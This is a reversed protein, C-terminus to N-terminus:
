PSVILLLIVEAPLGLESGCVYNGRVGEKEQVEGLGQLYSFDVVAFLKMSPSNGFM